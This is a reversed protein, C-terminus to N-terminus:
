YITSFFSELELDKATDIADRMDDATLDEEDNESDEEDEDSFDLDEDDVYEEIDEDPDVTNVDDDDIGALQDVDNIQDPSLGYRDEDYEADALNADGNDIAEDIVDDEADELLVAEVMADMNPM